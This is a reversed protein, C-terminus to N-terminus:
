ILESVSLEEIAKQCAASPGIVKVLDTPNYEGLDALNQPEGVSNYSRSGPFQVTAGTRTQLDTLNQGGRGILIRHHTAPVVVGLVVRDKYEAALKELEAKLKNVVAKPGRLRVEDTDAEGQRPSRFPLYISHVSCLMM